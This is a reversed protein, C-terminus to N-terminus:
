RISRKMSCGAKIALMPALLLCNASSRKSTFLILARMRATSPTQVPIADTCSSTLTSDAWGTGWRQVASPERALYCRAHIKGLCPAILPGFDPQHAADVPTPVAVILFDASALRRPDTTCELKAAARQSDTSVEGTPDRFENYAAIKAVSLDFGITHFHKGFEVALPLGVYGLGVIAITPNSNM